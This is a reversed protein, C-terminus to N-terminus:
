YISIFLLYFYIFLLVIISNPERLIHPILLAETQTIRRLKAEASLM